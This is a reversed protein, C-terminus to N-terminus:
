EILANMSQMIRNKLSEDELNAAAEVIDKRLTRALDLLTGVDAQSKKVPKEAPKLIAAHFSIDVMQATSLSQAVVPVQGTLLASFAPSGYPESKYKANWIAISAKARQQGKEQKVFDNLLKAASIKDGGTVAKRVNAVTIKKMAHMSLTIFCLLLILQKM